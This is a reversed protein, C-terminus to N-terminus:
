ILFSNVEKVNIFKFLAKYSGFFTYTGRCKYIFLKSDGNPCIVDFILKSCM